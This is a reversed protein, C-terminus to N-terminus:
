QEILCQLTKCLLSHNLSRKFHRLAMNLKNVTIPLQKTHVKQASYTVYRNSTNITICRQVESHIVQVNHRVCFCLLVTRFFADSRLISHGIGFGTSFIGTSTQIIHQKCINNYRWGWITPAYHLSPQQRDSGLDLVSAHLFYFIPLFSAWSV